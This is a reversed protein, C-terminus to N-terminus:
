PKQRKLRYLVVNTGRKLGGSVAEIVNLAAPRRKNRSSSHPEDSDNQDQQQRNNLVREPPTVAAPQTNVFQLLLKRLLGVLVVGQFQAVLAHLAFHLVQLVAGTGDFLARAVLHAHDLVALNEHLEDRGIQGCRDVRRIRRAHSRNSARVPIPPATARPASDPRANSAPIARDRCSPAFPFLRRPSSSAVPRPPATLSIEDASNFIACDIQISQAM